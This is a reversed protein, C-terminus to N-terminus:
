PHGAGVVGTDRRLINDLAFDGLIALAAVVESALAEHFAHPLPLFGVAAFDQVLQTAEARGAVPAAFAKGEVGPKRAGDGANEDHEIAITQDIAAAAHDVPTRSAFRRDGIELDLM